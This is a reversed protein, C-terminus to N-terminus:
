IFLDVDWYKNPNSSSELPVDDLGVDQRDSLVMAKMEYEKVLDHCLKHAREIHEDATDGYIKPFYFDILLMKYRPDLVVAVVLMPHIENWYNEFKDVMKDAMIRIALNDSTRWGNISMKMKCILPFFLNATPYKTGSFMETLMYFSKLHEVMTAALDWESDSPLSKYQSERQQLRSFISKYMLALDFRLLLKEVMADNTSCNDLTMSSLKRDVNWDLLCQVLENSLAEATHPSPVYIFRLIRSHLKWSNDIFHATVVMYGKKQNSATWLDTTIAVRGQNKELMHLTKVKEIYYLKSIESKLTNRSMPKVVPNAHAMMERFGKYEVFKLPLEHMVVMRAILSRLIKPDFSDFGIDCSRDERKLVKLSGQLAEQIKPQSRSFCFKVHRNLSTTGSTYKAELIANCHMCKAKKEGNITVKTFHDWATSVKKGKKDKLTSLSIEEVENDNSDEVNRSLNPANSSNIEINDSQSQSQSM